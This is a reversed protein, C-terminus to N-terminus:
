NTRVILNFSMFAFIPDASRIILINIANAIPTKNKKSTIVPVSPITNNTKAPTKKSVLKILKQGRYAGNPM